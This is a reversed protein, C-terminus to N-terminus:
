LANSLCFACNIWTCFVNYVFKVQKFGYRVIATTLYDQITENYREICGQRMPHNTRSIGHNLTAAELIERIFLHNFQSGISTGSFVSVWLDHELAAAIDQGDKPAIPYLFVYKTVYDQAV